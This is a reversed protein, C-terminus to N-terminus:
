FTWWLYWSPPCRHESYISSDSINRLKHSVTVPGDETVRKICSTAILM